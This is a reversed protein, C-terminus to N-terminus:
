FIFKELKMPALAELRPVLAKFHDSAMHATLEEESTWTECIMMHNAITASEFYDYAICGKDHRSKEVLETAIERLAEKKQTDELRLFVNLRIM